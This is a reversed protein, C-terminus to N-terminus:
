SFGSLKKLMRGLRYLKEISSCELKNNYLTLPSSFINQFMSLIMIGGRIVCYSLNSNM